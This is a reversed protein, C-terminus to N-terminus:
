YYRKGEKEVFYLGLSSLSRLSSRANNTLYLLNHTLACLTRVFAKLHEFAIKLTRFSFIM